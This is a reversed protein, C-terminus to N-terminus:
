ASDTLAPKEPVYGTLNKIDRLFFVGYDRQAVQEVTEGVESHFFFLTKRHNSLIKHTKM